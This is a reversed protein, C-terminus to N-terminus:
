TIRETGFYLIRISDRARACSRTARARRPGHAPNGPIGDPGPARPLPTLRRACRGRGCLVPGSGRSLRRLGRAPSRRLCKFRIKPPIATRLRARCARVRVAAASGCDLGRVYTRALRRSLSHILDGRAAGGRRREPARSRPPILPYPETATTNMSHSLNQDKLRLVVWRLPPSRTWWASRLLVAAAGAARSLAHPNTEARTGRKRRARM